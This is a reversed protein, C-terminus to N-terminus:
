LTIETLDSVAGTSTGKILINVGPLGEGNDAGTIRGSVSKDQAQLQFSWAVAVVVMLTTILPQYFNKM